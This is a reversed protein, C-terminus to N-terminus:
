RGLGLPCVGLAGVNNTSINSRGYVDVHSPANSSLTSPIDGM